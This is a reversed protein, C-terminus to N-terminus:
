SQIESYCRQEGRATRVVVAYSLGLLDALVRLSPSRRYRPLAATERIKRVQEVTLVPRRSM